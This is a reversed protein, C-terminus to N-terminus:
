GRGHSSYVWYFSRISELSVHFVSQLLGFSGKQGAKLADVPTSFDFAANGSLNKDLVDLATEKNVQVLSDRFIKLTFM